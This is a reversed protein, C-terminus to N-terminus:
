FIHKNYKGILSHLYNYSQENLVFCIRFLYKQEETGINNTIKYMLESRLKICRKIHNRLIRPKINKIKM